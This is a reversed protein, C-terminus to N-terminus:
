MPRDREASRRREQRRGLWDLLAITLGTLFLGGMLIYVNLDNM